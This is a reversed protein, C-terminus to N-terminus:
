ILWRYAAAVALPIAINDFGRPSIAEAVAGAVGCGVGARLPPPGGPVLAAVAACAAGAVVFFALSGELTRGYAWRVFRRQGLKTGAVAAAPDAFALAAIGALVAGRQAVNWFLAYVLCVGLPFMWLGRAEAPTEALKPMSSRMRPSLNLVTFLAPPVLAWGLSDFRTTFFLTVAGIVAHLIKRLSFRSRPLRPEIRGVLFVLLAVLGISLLAVLPDHLRALV